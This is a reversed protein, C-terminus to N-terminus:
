VRYLTRDWGGRWLGLSHLFVRGTPRGPETVREDLTETTPLDLDSPLGTGEPVLPDSRLPSLPLRLWPNSLRVVRWPGTVRRPTAPTPLPGPWRRWRSPGAESGPMSVRRINWPRATSRPPCRLDPRRTRGSMMLTMVRPWWPITPVQWSLLRPRGVHGSTLDLQGRDNWLLFSGDCHDRRKGSWCPYVLRCIHRSRCVRCSQGVRCTHCARRVWCLCPVWCTVLWCPVM